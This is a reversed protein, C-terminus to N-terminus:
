IVIINWNKNKMDEKFGVVVREKSDRREDRRNQLTIM